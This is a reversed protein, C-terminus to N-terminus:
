LFLVFSLYIMAARGQLHRMSLKHGTTIITTNRGWETSTKGKLTGMYM